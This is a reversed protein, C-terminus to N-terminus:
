QFHIQSTDMFIHTRDRAKSLPTLIWCQQSSHHVDCSCRLDWMATATTFAADIAGILSRAKSDGYTVPRARFFCFSLCVSFGGLPCFDHERFKGELTDFGLPCKRTIPILSFFNPEKGEKHTLKVQNKSCIFLKM